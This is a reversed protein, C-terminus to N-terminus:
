SKLISLCNFNHFVTQGVLRVRYEFNHFFYYVAYPPLPFPADPPCEPGEEVHQARARLPPREGGVEAGPLGDVVIEALQPVLPHELLQGRKQDALREPPEAPPPM